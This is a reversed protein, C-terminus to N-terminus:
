SLEFETYCLGFNSGKQHIGMQSFIGDRDIGVAGAGVGEVQAAWGWWLIWRGGERAAAVAM